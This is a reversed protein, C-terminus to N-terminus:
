DHSGVEPRSKSAVDGSVDSSAVGAYPCLSRAM